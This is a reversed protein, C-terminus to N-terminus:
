AEVQMPMERTRVVLVTATLLVITYGFLFMLHSGSAQEGFIVEARSRITDLDMWDALLARLRHSITLKNITAPILSVVLEILLTYAVAFVISRRLIVVGILLYLAGYSLTSLCVLKCLSLWLKSPESAGSALVCATVSFIGAAATWLVAILYKGLVVAVKGSPRVALYIWTQGELETQIAPTAWLLLGLLCSVQPVLFFIVLSAIDIPISDQSQWRVMAILAAPFIALMLWIMTRSFTLTRKLEFSFVEFIAAIM